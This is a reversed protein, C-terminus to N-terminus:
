IVPLKRSSSVGKVLWNFVDDQGFVFGLKPQLVDRGIVTNDLIKQIVPM